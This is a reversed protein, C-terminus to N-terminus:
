ENPIETTAADAIPESVVESQEVPKIEEVSTESIVDAQKELKNEKAKNKKDKKAAKKAAINALTAEPDIEDFKMYGYVCAGRLMFILAMIGAFMYFALRISYLSIIGLVGVSNLWAAKMYDLSGKRANRTTFEGDITIPNLQVLVAEPMDIVEGLMELIGWKALFQDGSKLNFEKIADEESMESVKNKYEDFDIGPTEKGFSDIKKCESSDGVYTKSLGNLIYFTWKAQDTILGTDLLAVEISFKDFSGYAANISNYVSVMVKSLEKNKTSEKKYAKIIADKKDKIAAFEEDDWASNISYVDAGETYDSFESGRYALSLSKFDEKYEDADKESLTGDAVANKITAFTKETLNGNEVNIEIFTDVLQRNVKSQTEFDAMVDEALITNQTAGAFLKPFVVDVMLMIGCLCCVATTVLGMTRKAFFEKKFKITDFKEALKNKEKVMHKSYSKKYLCRFCIEIVACILTVVITLIMPVFAMIGYINKEAFKASYVISLIFLIPFGVCYLLVDLAIFIGKQVKPSMKPSKTNTNEM